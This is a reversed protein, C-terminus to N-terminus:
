AMPVIFKNPSLMGRYYLLLRYLQEHSDDFWESIVYDPKKNWTEIDLRQEITDLAILFDPSFSRHHTTSEIVIIKGADIVGQIYAKSYLPHQVTANYYIAGLLEALPEALVTKGSGSYGTILIKM